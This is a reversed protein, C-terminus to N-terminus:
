NLIFTEKDVVHLRFTAQAVFETFALDVINKEALENISMNKDILASKVLVLEQAPLTKALWAALSDSTIDWSAPIGANDLEQIDPSWIVIKKQRLQAQIATLSHAIVFDNKFGKFLLAMQQMALIAMRHATNDDFRWREQFQRVCDAFGGGGPVIVIASGHYKQELVDLCVPLADSEALSGGLKVVIM